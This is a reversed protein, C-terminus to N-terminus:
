KKGDYLEPNLLNIIFKIFPFFENMGSIIHLVLTISFYNLYLNTKRCRSVSIPRFTFYGNKHPCKEDSTVQKCNRYVTVGRSLVVRRRIGDSRDYICHISRYGVNNNIRTGM